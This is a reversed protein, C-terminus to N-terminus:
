EKLRTPMEGPPMDTVVINVACHGIFYGFHRMLVKRAVSKGDEMYSVSDGVSPLPIYSGDDFTIDEDQCYDRPRTDGASLYQFCVSYKM